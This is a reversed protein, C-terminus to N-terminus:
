SSGSKKQSVPNGLAKRLVSFRKGSDAEYVVDRSLDDVILKDLRLFWDGIVKCPPRPYSFFRHGCGRGRERFNPGFHAFDKGCFWSGNEGPMRQFGIQTSQLHRVRSADIGGHYVMVRTTARQLRPKRPQGLFPATSLDLITPFAPMIGFLVSPRTQLEKLFLDLIPRSVSLELCVLLRNKLPDCPARTTPSYSGRHDVMTSRSVPVPRFRCSRHSALRVFINHVTDNFHERVILKDKSSEQFQRISASTRGM